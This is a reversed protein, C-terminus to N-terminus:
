RALQGAALGARLAPAPACAGPAHAAVTRARDPGQKMASSVAPNAAAAQERSGVSDHEGPWPMLFTALLGAITIGLEKADMDQELSQALVTHALALSM